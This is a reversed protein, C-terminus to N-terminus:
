DPHGASELLRVKRELEDSLRRRLRLAKPIRVLAEATARVYAPDRLAERLLARSATACTGPPRRMCSTLFENRLVRARQAPASARNASPRHYAHLGPYYCLDWGAAALDLALLQEEGRFHLVPSFGGLERFASRRVIASCSQFGLVSPGPLGAAQGLLSNALEDSLPDRRGEPWVVTQAALLALTPHRDFLQEAIAPAEPSWWSDDDCFAV